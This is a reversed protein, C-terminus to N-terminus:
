FISPRTRLFFRVITEYLIPNDYTRIQPQSKLEDASEGRVKLIKGPNHGFKSVRTVKIQIVILIYDPKFIYFLCFLKELFIHTYNVFFLMLMYIIRVLVDIRKCSVMVILFQWTGKVLPTAYHWKISVLKIWTRKWRETLLRLLHRHVSILFLFTGGVLHSLIIADLSPPWTLTLKKNNRTNERSIITKWSGVNWTHYLFFTLATM